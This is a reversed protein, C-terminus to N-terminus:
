ELYKKTLTLLPKVILEPKPLKRATQLSLKSTQNYIKPDLLKQIEQTWINVNLYDYIVSGCNKLLYDLNTNISAIVPIGNLLSETAVRPGGENAISPILLIKVKSYIEKMDNVPQVVKVNRCYNFDIEQFYDISETQGHGDSLERILENDWNRGKKLHGWGRVALFKEDPLCNAIAKFIEGGKSKIPNIMAIFEQSNQTVKYEQFNVFSPVLITDERKLNAIAYNLTSQSNAIVHTCEFQGGKKINLNGSPSRLFLFTPIKNKKGFLISQKVWSSQTFIIKPGELNLCIETLYESIYKHNPIRSITINEDFNNYSKDNMVEKTLVSIKYGIESLYKLLTYASIEAGGSAPM